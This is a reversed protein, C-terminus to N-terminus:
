RENSSNGLNQYSKNFFVSYFLISFGLLGFAITISLGDVLLGFLTPGLLYAIAWGLGVFSMIIGRNSETSNNVVMIQYSVATIGTFIGLALTLFFISITGKAIVVFLFCIATGRLSLKLLLPFPTKELIRAYFHGAIISGVFFSTLIVSIITESTGMRKLWVPFFSQTLAYLLGACFATLIALQIAHIRALDKFSLLTDKLKIRERGALPISKMSWVVILGLVGLIGVLRFSSLYGINVIAWGALLVGFIKGGENFSHLRGLISSSETSSIRSAYSQSTPWFSTRIIGNLIQFFVLTLFELTYAFILSSLITLCYTLALIKKEGYRDSLAGVFMRLIIQILGPISILIGIKTASYGAFVGYLPIIISILSFIINFLFGVTYIPITRLLIEKQM